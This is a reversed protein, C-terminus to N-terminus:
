LYNNEGEAAKKKTKPKRCIVISHEPSLKKNIRNPIQQSEKM